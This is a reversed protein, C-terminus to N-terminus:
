KQFVIRSVDGASIRFAGYGTDGYFVASKNVKLQLHSGSKLLLNAPTDNGKMMPDFSAEKLDRFFITMEGEGRKGKFFIKGDMSFQSLQTSVGSRDVVQATINEDSKPIEGEPAGGLNAMGLLMSAFFFILAATLVGRM